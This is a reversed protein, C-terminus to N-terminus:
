VFWKLDILVAVITTKLKSWICHNKGKLLKECGNKWNEVSWMMKERKIWCGNLKVWELPKKMWCGVM